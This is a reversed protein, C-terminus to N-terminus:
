YYFRLSYYLPNISNIIIILTTWRSTKNFLRPISLLFFFPVKITCLHRYLYRLTNDSIIKLRCCKLPYAGSESFLSHTSLHFMWIQFFLYIKFLYLLNISLAMTFSHKDPGLAHQLFAKEGTLFVICSYVIYCEGWGLGTRFTVGKHWNRFSRSYSECPKNHKTIRKEVRRDGIKSRM